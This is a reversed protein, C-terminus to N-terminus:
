NIFDPSKESQLEIAQWFLDRENGRGDAERLDRLTLSMYYQEHEGCM